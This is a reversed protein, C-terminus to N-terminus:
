FLLLKRLTKRGKKEGAENRENRTHFFGRRAKALLFKLIFLRAPSLYSLLCTRTINRAAEQRLKLPEVYMRSHHFITTGHKEYM